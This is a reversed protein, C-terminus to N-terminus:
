DRNNSLRLSQRDKMAQRILDKFVETTFLEILDPSEPRPKRWTVMATSYWSSTILGTSMMKLSARYNHMRLCYFKVADKIKERIYSLRKSNSILSFNQQTQDNNLIFSLKKKKSIFSKIMIGEENRWMELLQDYLKRKYPIIERIKKQIFIIQKIIVKSKWSIIIHNMCYNNLIIDFFSTIIIMQSHKKKSIWDKCYNELIKLKKIAMHKKIYQLRHLIKGIFLASLSFQKLLCSTRKKRYKLIKISNKIILPMSCAGIITTWAKYIKLVDAKKQRFFLKKFKEELKFEVIEKKMKILSSKTVRIVEHKAERASNIQKNKERRSEPTFPRMDKNNKIMSNETTTKRTKFYSSMDSYFICKFKELVSM